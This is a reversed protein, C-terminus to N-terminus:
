TKKLCRIGKLPDSSKLKLGMQSKVCEFRYDAKKPIIAELM